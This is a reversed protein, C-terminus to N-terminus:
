LTRTVQLLLKSAEYMRDIYNERCEPNDVTNSVIVGLLIKHAEIILEKAKNIETKM